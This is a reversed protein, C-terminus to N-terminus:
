ITYVQLLDYCSQKTNFTWGLYGNVFYLYILAYKFYSVSYTTVFRYPAGYTMGGEALCNNGMPVVKACVVIWEDKM